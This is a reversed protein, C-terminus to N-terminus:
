TGGGGVAEVLAQGEEEGKQDDVEGGGGQGEGMPAFVGGALAVEPKEDMDPDLAKGVALDERDDEEFGQLAGDVALGEVPVFQLAGGLHGFGGFM